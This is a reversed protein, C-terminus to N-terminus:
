GIPYNGVVGPGVSELMAGSTSLQVTNNESSFQAKGWSTLNALVEGIPSIRAACFNLVGPGASAADCRAFSTWMTIWLSEPYGIPYSISGQPPNGEAARPLRSRKDGRPFALACDSLDCIEAIARCKRSIQKADLGTCVGCRVVHSPGLVFESVLFLGRKGGISGHGM